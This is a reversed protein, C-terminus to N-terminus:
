PHYSAWQSTRAVDGKTKLWRAVVSSAARDRGPNPESRDAIDQKRIMM